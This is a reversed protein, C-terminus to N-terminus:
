IQLFKGSIGGQIKFFIDTKDQLIMRLEEFEQKEILMRIHRLGHYLVNELSISEPRPKLLSISKAEEFFSLKKYNNYCPKCDNTLVLYTVIIMNNEYRWSTSHIFFPTMQMSKVRKFVIGDPDNDLKEFSLLERLYSIEKKCCFFVYFIELGIM